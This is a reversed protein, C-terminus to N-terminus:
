ITKCKEGDYQTYWILIQSLGWIAFNGITDFVEEVSAENIDFLM